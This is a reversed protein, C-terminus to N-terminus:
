QLQLFLVDIHKRIPGETETHEDMSGYSSSLSSGSGASSTHASSTLMCMCFFFLSFSCCARFENITSCSNLQVANHRQLPNSSLLQFTQCIYNVTFQQSYAPTMASLIM